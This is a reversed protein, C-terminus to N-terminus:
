QDNGPIRGFTDVARVELYPGLQERTIGMDKAEEEWRRTFRARRDMEADSTCDHSMDEGEAPPLCVWGSSTPRLGMLTQRRLEAVDEVDRVISLAPPRSGTEYPGSTLEAGWDGAVGRARSAGPAGPGVGPITVPKEPSTAWASEAVRTASPKPILSLDVPVSAKKDSPTQKIPPVTAGTDRLVDRLSEAVSRALDLRPPSSVQSTTCCCRDALMVLETLDATPVTGLLERSAAHGSMDPVAAKILHWAVSSAPSPEYGANQLMVWLSQRVGNVASRLALDSKAKRPFSFPNKMGEVTTGADILSM